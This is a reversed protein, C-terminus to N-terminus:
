GAPMRAEQALSDLFTRARGYDGAPYSRVNQKLVDIFKSVTSQIERLEGYQISGGSAARDAFLQDLRKRYDTYIDDMLVPPYEIHGTVPDLQTSGLRPPAAMKAMRIAQEQTVPPGQEAAKAERNVKRMEFYTETWRLRNQIEQTKAEEWNKAAESNKLNEYGQARMMESMGYAAAQGATSAYGGRNYGFGGGWQAIAPWAAVVAAALAVAGIVTPRSRHTTRSDVAM